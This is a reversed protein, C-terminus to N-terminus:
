GLLPDIKAKLEDLTQEGDLMEGNIFFTPTGTVGFKTGGDRIALIKKALDQDKLIADYKEKSIGAQKAIEPLKTAPDAAWTELTSFYIDMLPFYAEKPASRAVMFAALAADNLPFERFIFRIKGTDIYQAKFQGYVDNHFRACHPCTASAYEIVTVKADKNGLWMDGLEPEKYLEALDVGQALAPAAALALIALASSGLLLDRRNLTNMVM